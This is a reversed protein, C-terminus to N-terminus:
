NDDIKALEEVLWKVKEPLKEFAIFKPDFVSHNTLVTANGQMHSCLLQVALEKNSM